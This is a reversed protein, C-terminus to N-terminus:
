VTRYFLHGVRWMLAYFQRAIERRENLTGPVRLREAITGISTRGDAAHLLAEELPSRAFEFRGRRFRGSGLPELAPHRVPRYKLWDRGDFDIRWRPNDAPLRAM